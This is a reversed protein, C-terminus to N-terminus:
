GTPGVGRVAPPRRRRGPRLRGARGRRDPPDPRPVDATGEPRAAERPPPCRRSTTSGTTTFRAASPCSQVPGAPDYVFQFPYTKDDGAEVWVQVQVQNGQEIAPAVCKKALDMTRAQKTDFNDGNEAKHQVGGGSSDLAHIDIVFARSNYVRFASATANPEPDSM